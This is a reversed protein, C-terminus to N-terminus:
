IQEHKLEPLSNIAEEKLTDIVRTYREVYTLDSHGLLSAVTKVNAGNILINTAFSHRASHWTIRKDIGAQKVWYRLSKTASEFSPLGFIPSVRAFHKPPEGVLKLLGDNLPITVWSKSSHGKTKDQEFRLLKNSFDINGFTLDKVDCWRLGTYLCFIFAKRIEQNEHHYHTAILKEIEEQSLIDKKLALTDCVIVIGQTPDTQLYGKEVCNKMVKKFRQFITRAGEGVSRSQLYEAFKIMMEHTISEAMFLKPENTHLSLFDFFRNRAIKIMRVDKKDYNEIYNDFFDLIYIKREKRLRYGERQQLFEQERERRIAKALEITEKNKERQQPTRPNVVLYLYLRERKRTSHGTQSNYGYNYELSLSFEKGEKIPTKLLKPNGSEITYKAQRM